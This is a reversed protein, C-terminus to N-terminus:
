QNVLWNIRKFDSYYMNIYSSYTYLHGPIEVTKPPLNKSLRRINIEENEFPTREIRLEYLKEFNRSEYILDTLKSRTAYLYLIQSGSIDLQTVASGSIDVLIVGSNNSLDLATLSSTHAVNLQQLEKFVAFSTDSFVDNNLKKIPTSELNITELSINRSLDLDTIQSYSVDLYMLYTNQTLNLNRLPNNAAELIYLSPAGSLDLEKIQNNNMSLIFISSSEPLNLDMLRNNEVQLSFLNPFCTLDLSILENNLTSLDLCGTLDIEDLYNDMCTLSGLKTNGSVDLLILGSNNVTLSQLADESGVITIGHSPFSDTFVLNHERINQNVERSEENGDNYYYITMDDTVSCQLQVSNQITVMVVANPNGGRTKPMRSLAQEILEAKSYKQLLESKSLQKPDDPLNIEFDDSSCSTAGVLLILCTLLMFCRSKMSSLCIVKKM